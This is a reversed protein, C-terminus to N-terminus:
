LDHIELDVLRVDLWTSITEVHDPADNLESAGTVADVGDMKQDGSGSTTVVFINDSSYKADLFAKAHEEPKWIEWTHLIIVANWITPDVDDLLSVDVVKFYVEQSKFEGIVGSVVKEKYESGQTAILVRQPLESSNIEYSEVFEMSYTFKYWMLFLIFFTIFLGTGLLIKKRM